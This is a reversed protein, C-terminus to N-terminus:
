IIFFFVVKVSRLIYFIVLILVIYTADTTILLGVNITELVSDWFRVIASTAMRSVTTRSLVVSSQKFPNLLIKVCRVLSHPIINTMLSCIKCHINIIPKLINRYLTCVTCFSKGTPRPDRKIIAFGYQQVKLVQLLIKYRFVVPALINGRKWINLYTIYSFNDNKLWQFDSYLESNWGILTM